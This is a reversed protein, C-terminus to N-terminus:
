SCISLAQEARSYYYIQSSLVEDAALETENIEEVMGALEKYHSRSAAPLLITEHISSPLIFLDSCLKESIAELLNPYLICSAGYLKQTNTLVYMPCFSPASRDYSAPTQFLDSIVSTMNRFDYPLLQPTIHCAQKYLQETSINWLKLHNTHILITASGSESVQLLCYFVIALDLYRIYPVTKLLEKNKEYHIIRYAIRSRIKTYDTFFDAEIRETSCTQKYTLVIDKCIAEFNPFLDQREYYQNLFITPAINSTQNSIILGDLKLGNNKCITHLQVSTDPALLQAVRKQINAKFEEYDM